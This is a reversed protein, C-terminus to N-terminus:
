ETEIQTGAAPVGFGLSIIKFFLNNTAKSSQNALSTGRKKQAENVMGANACTAGLSMNAAGATLEAITGKGWPTFTRARTWKCPVGIVRIYV